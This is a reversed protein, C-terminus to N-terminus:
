SGGEEYKVFKIYSGMNAIRQLNIRVMGQPAKKSYGEPTVNKFYKSVYRGYELMGIYHVENTLFYKVDAGKKVDNEPVLKPARRLRNKCEQIAKMKSSLEPKRTYTKKKPSAKERPGLKPAFVLPNKNPEAAGQTPAKVLPTRQPKVQHNSKFTPKYGSSFYWGSVAYGTDVPTMAIISVFFSDTIGKLTKNLKGSTTKCWNDVKKSFAALDSFTEM